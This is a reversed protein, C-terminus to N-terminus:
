KEAGWCTNKRGCTNCDAKQVQLGNFHYCGNKDIRDMVELQKLTAPLFNGSDFETEHEAYFKILLTEKYKALAEDQMKHAQKRYGNLLRNLGQIKQWADSELERIASYRINDDESEAELVLRELRVKEM